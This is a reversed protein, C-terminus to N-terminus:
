EIHVREVTCGASDLRRKAEILLDPSLPGRLAAEVNQRLHDTDKTGVIVTDVGPNSLTFRVTFEMRSMGDLVDDLRATEWRDRMTSGPLMTSTRTWDSPAGRAAGGRVITGYGRKRALELVGEHDRQLASYPIQFTDFVGSELQEMLNPLTGSVGILRVKGEDRLKVVESLAGDREFEELTLSCHFQLIDLQETRLLRLSRETGKRINAATHLHEGVAGDIVCGCKSALVYEDRRHAIYRGIREESVGYDISTDIFNIGADLVAHLVREAQAESIHPGREGGRLERTGFGLVTV